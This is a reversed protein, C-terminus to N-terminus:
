RAGSAGEGVVRTRNKQRRDANRELLNQMATMLEATLARETTALNHREEPDTELDYLRVQEHSFLRQLIDPKLGQLTRARREQRSLESWATPTYILKHRGMLVAKQEPGWGTAESFIARRPMQSDELRILPTLDAGACDRLSDPQEFGVLGLVTPM